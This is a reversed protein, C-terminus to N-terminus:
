LIPVGDPLRGLIFSPILSVAVSPWIGLSREFLSKMLVQYKCFVQTVVSCALSKRCKRCVCVHANFLMSSFFVAQM